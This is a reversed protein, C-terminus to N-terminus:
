RLEKTVLTRQSGDDFNRKAVRGANRVDAIDKQSAKEDIASYGPTGGGTAAPTYPDVPLAPRPASTQVRLGSRHATTKQKKTAASATAATSLVIAACLAFKTWILM